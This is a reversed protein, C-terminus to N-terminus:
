GLGTVPVVVPEIPYLFRGEIEAEAETNAVLSVLIGIGAAFMISYLLRIGPDTTM